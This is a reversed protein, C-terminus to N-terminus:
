NKCREYLNGNVRLRKGILEFNVTSAWKDGEESCCCTQQTKYVNDIQTVKKIKCNTQGDSNWTNKSLSAPGSDVGAGKCSQGKTVWKGLAEAPVDTANATADLNMVAFMLTILAFASTPRKM